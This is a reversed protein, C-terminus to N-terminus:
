GFNVKAAKNLDKGTAIVNTMNWREDCNVVVVDIVVVVVDILIGGFVITIEVLVEVDTWTVRNEM